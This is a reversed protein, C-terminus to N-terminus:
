FSTAAELLHQKPFIAAEILLKAKVPIRFYVSLLLTLLIPNSCIKVDSFHITGNFSHIAALIRYFCNHYGQFFACSSGITKKLIVMNSSFSNSLCHIVALEGTLIFVTCKLSYIVTMRKQSLLLYVIELSTHSCNYHHFLYVTWLFPSHM